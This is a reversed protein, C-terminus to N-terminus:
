PQRANPNRVTNRSELYNRKLANSLGIGADFLTNTPHERCYSFMWNM